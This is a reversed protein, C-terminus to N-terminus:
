KNYLRATLKLLKKHSDEKNKLSKLVEAEITNKAMLHIIRVNNKQGQRDLRANFQQYIENSWCLGFWVITHGGYQLNLGHGASQPHAFLVPIKSKNWQTVTQEDKLVVASPIAKTLECLDSKFNYAVLVNSNAHEIIEKLAEIKEEHIKVYDRQGLEANHYINGNCIQLLKGVKAAANAAVIEGAEYELLFEKKMEEYAKAAKPPLAIHQNIEIRQPVDLYDKAEMRLVINSVKAKIKNVSEPKIQWNHWQPNGVQQCYAQLFSTRTTGLRLGYDLLYFQAWLEILSNPAPTGTLQVMRNIKGLVKRLSKFRKSTSTKFSTSEDLVVMDYQWDRGMEDVLWSVNERNIIHIQSDDFLAVERKSASLGALVTYTLRATHEWNEIETPWTSRSVRLPAIILAKKIKRKKFLYDIATLTTITKGLGMDIWLACRPNKVIFTAARTQYSHM